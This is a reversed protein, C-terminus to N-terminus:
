FEYYNYFILTLGVILFLGSFVFAITVHLPYRRSDTALPSEM